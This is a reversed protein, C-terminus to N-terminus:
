TCMVRVSRFASSQCREVPGALAQLPSRPWVSSPWRRFRFGPPARGRACAVIEGPGPPRAPARPAELGEDGGLRREGPEIRPGEPLRAVVRDGLLEPVGDVVEATGPDRCRETAAARAEGDVPGAAAIDREEDHPVGALPVGRLPRGHGRQTRHPLVGPEHDQGAVHDVGGAVDVLVLLLEVSGIAVECPRYVRNGAVVVPVVLQVTEHEVEAPELVPGRRLPGEGLPHGPPLPM